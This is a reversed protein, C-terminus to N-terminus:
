FKFDDFFALSAKIAGFNAASKRFHIGTGRHRMGQKTAKILLGEQGVRAALQLPASMIFPGQKVLQLGTAFSATRIDALDRNRLNVPRTLRMIQDETEPDFGFIVWKEDSLHRLEITEEPALPHDPRMVIGHEIETVIHSVISDKHETEDIVGLYVDMGGNVLAEGNDRQTATILELNLNPFQTKLETFLSAICSLHFLPGAGVRLSSIGAAKISNLAERCFAYEREIRLAHDLAIKGAESLAMGYRDREFLPVGFDAELNAIRKSVSPQTVGLEDAAATISRSRAVALFASLNRDM